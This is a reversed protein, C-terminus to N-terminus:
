KGVDKRKIGIKPGTLPGHMEGTGNTQYKGQEEGQEEDSKYQEEGEKSKRTKEAPIKLDEEWDNFILNMYEIALRYSTPFWKWVPDKKAQV